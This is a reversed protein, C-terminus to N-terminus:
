VRNTDRRYAWGAGAALIATWAAVTIWGRADWGQGDLAVHSAQVLWWSPLFPGLTHLFGNTIPFWTGGLFAFISVGGGIVPGVSDTTVLHGVLIGMAAFPLLGVLILATMGLWRQAPLSVGLAAGSAYLLVLSSLAMGYGTLVKARFYARVSLPSIRLQRTWGAQREGAIRAGTSIMSVMTGFAALGVMYYLPVPLGSGGFNHNNRQPAALLWYFILPFGLSFLFFRRNRFTRLLEYRTYAVGSM